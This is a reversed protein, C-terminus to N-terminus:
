NLKFDAIHPLHDTLFINKAALTEYYLIETSAGYYSIHDIYSGGEARLTGVTGCGGVNNKLVGKEKAVLM